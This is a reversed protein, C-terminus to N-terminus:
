IYVICYFLAISCVCYLVISCHARGTVVMIANHCSTFKPVRHVTVCQLIYCQPTVLTSLSRATLSAYHLYHVDRISESIYIYVCLLNEDNLWYLLTSARVTASQKCTRLWMPMQKTCLCYGLRMLICYDKICKYKCKCM